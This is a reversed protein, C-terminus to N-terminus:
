EGTMITRPGAPKLRCQQGIRSPIGYRPCLAPFERPLSVREDVSIMFDGSKPGQLAL